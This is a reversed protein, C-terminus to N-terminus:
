VVFSGCVKMSVYFAINAMGSSLTEGTAYRFLSKTKPVSAEVNNTYPTLMDQEATMVVHTSVSTTSSSAFLRGFASSSSTASDTRDHGSRRAQTPSLERWPSRQRYSSPRSRDQESLLMTVDESASASALSSSSASLVRPRVMMRRELTVVVKKLTVSPDGLDFTIEVGLDDAPGFLSGKLSASYGVRRHAASSPM